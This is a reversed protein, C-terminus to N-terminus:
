VDCRLPAGSPYLVAPEFPVALAFTVASLLEAKIVVVLEFPFAFAIVSRLPAGSPYANVCQLVFAVCAVASM